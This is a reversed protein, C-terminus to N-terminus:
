SNLLSVSPWQQATLTWAASLRREEGLGGDTAKAEHATILARGEQRPSLKCLPKRGAAARSVPTQLETKIDEEAQSARRGSGFGEDRLSAQCRGKTAM